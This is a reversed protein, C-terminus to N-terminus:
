KSKGNNINKSIYLMIIDLLQLFAEEPLTNSNQISALGDVIEKALEM